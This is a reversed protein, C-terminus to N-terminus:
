KRRAIITISFLIKIHPLLLTRRKKIRIKETNGKLKFIRGFLMLIGM